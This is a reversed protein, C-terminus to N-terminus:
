YKNVIKINSNVKLLETMYQEIDKKALDHDVADSSYFEPFLLGDEKPSWGIQALQKYLTTKEYIRIGSAILLVDPKLELIRELCERITENTEGYAGFLLSHVRKMGADKCNKDAELIDEYTYSKQFSKNM